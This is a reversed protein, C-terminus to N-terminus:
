LMTEFIHIKSGASDLERFGLTHNLQIIPQNSLEMWTRLQHAGREAARHIAAIKLRKAIHQGRFAPLVGTAHQWYVSADDDDRMLISEGVFMGNRQAILFDAPDVSEGLLRRFKSLTVIPEDPMPVDLSVAAHLVCAREVADPHIRMLDALTTIELEDTYTRHHPLSHADITMGFLQETGIRQYTHHELFRVTDDDPHSMVRVRQAGASAAWQHVVHLVDRGIGQGRFDPAVRVHAWFTHRPTNWTARFCFAVAIPRDADGVLWRRFPIGADTLDADFHLVEQPTDYEYDCHLTDPTMQTMTAHANAAIQGRVVQIPPSSLTSM